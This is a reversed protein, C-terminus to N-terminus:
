QSRVVSKVWIVTIGPNPVGLDPDPFAGLEKTLQATDPHFLTYEEGPIVAIFKQKQRFAWNRVLERTTGGKGTSGHGHIVKLVALVSSNRVQQWADLLEEEVQDPHRPPHAVDITLLPSSM